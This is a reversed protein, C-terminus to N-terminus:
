TELAPLHLAFGLFEAPVLFAAPRHAEFARDRSDSLAQLEHQDKGYNCACKGAGGDPHHRVTVVGRGDNLDIGPLFRDGIDFAHHGIEFAVLRADFAFDFDNARARDNQLDNVRQLQARVRIEGRWREPRSHEGFYADFGASRPGIDADGVLRAVLDGIDQLKVLRAKVIGFAVFHGRSEEVPELDHAHAVRQQDVDAERGALGDLRSSDGVGNGLDIQFILEIGFGARSRGGAAQQFFLKFLHALLNRVGFLLDLAPFRGVIDEFGFALDQRFLLEGTQHFLRNNGAIQRGFGPRFVFLHLFQGPGAIAAGGNGVHQLAMGDAQELFLQGVGRAFRGLEFGFVARSM